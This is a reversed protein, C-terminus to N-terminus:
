RGKEPAGPAQTTKVAAGDYLDTLHDTAIVANPSIGSLIEVRADAGSGIKAGLQVVAVRARGDKVFFLQSSNTTSDTLVATQPVFLGQTSGPLLIRATAFMGPKLALDINSFEVVVTFTRSSPDVAPNIATV